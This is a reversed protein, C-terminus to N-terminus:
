MFLLLAVVLVPAEPPTRLPAQDPVQQALRAERARLGADAEDERARLRRLGEVEAEALSSEAGRVRKERAVLRDYVDQRTASVLTDQDPM